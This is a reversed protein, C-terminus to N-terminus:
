STDVHRNMYSKVPWSTLYFPPSAEKLLNFFSERQVLRLFSVKENEIYPPRRTSLVM